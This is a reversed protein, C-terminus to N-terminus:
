RQQQSRAWGGAPQSQQLHTGTCIVVTSRRSSWAVFACAIRKEITPGEGPSVAADLGVFAATVRVAGSTANATPSCDLRSHRSEGLLFNVDFVNCARLTVERRRGSQAQEDSATSASTCLSLNVLRVVLANHDGTPTTRRNSSDAIM